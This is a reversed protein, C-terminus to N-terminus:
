KVKNLYDGLRRDLKALEETGSEAGAEAELNLAKVAFMMAALALPDVKSVDYQSEISAILHNIEKEARRFVEEQERAITLTYTQGNISINIRLSNEQM